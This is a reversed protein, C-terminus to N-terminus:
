NITFTAGSVELIIDLRDPISQVSYLNISNAPITQLVEVDSKLKAIYEDASQDAQPLQLLSKTDQGYRSGLYGNTPTELWHQVMGSVDKGTIKTM